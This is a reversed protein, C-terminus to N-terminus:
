FKEVHCFFFLNLCKELCFSLRKLEFFLYLGFCVICKECISIVGFFHIHFLFLYPLIIKDNETENFIEFFRIIHELEDGRKCGEDEGRM